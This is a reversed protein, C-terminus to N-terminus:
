EASDTTDPSRSTPPMLPFHEYRPPTVSPRHINFHTEYEALVRSLHRANIILMRDLVERRLSGQIGHLTGFTRRM